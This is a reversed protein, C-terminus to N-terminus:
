SQVQQARLVDHCYGKSLERVFRTACRQLALMFRLLPDSFEGIAGGSPTADRVLPNSICLGPEGSERVFEGFGQQSDFGSYLTGISDDVSCKRGFTAPELGALPALSKCRLATCGSFEFGNYNM